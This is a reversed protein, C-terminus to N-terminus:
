QRAKRSSAPRSDILYPSSGTKRASSQPGITLDFAARGAEGTGSALVSSTNANRIEFTIVGGIKVLEFTIDTGVSNVLARARGSVRLENGSIKGQLFLFNSSEILTRSSYNFARLSGNVPNADNFLNATGTDATGSADFRLTSVPGGSALFKGGGGTTYDPPGPSLPGIVVKDFTMASRSVAAHHAKAKVRGLGRSAALFDASTSLGLFQGQEVHHIPEGPTFEVNAQGSGRYEGVFKLDSLSGSGSPVNGITLPKFLAGEYRLSRNPDDFFKAAVLRQWVNSIVLEEGASFTLGTSNTIVARADQIDDSVKVFENVEHHSTTQDNERACIVYTWKPAGPTPQFHAGSRRNGFEQFVFAEGRSADVVIYYDVNLFGDAAILQPDHEGSVKGLWVGNLTNAIRQPSFVTADHSLVRPTTPATEACTTAISTDLATAIESPSPNQVPKSLMAAARSVRTGKSREPRRKQAAAPIGIVGLILLVLIYTKITSM